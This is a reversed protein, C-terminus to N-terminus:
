QLDNERSQRRAMEVMQANLAEALEHLEADTMGRLDIAGLWTMGTARYEVDCVPCIMVPNEITGSAAGEGPEQDLPLIGMAGCQPCQRADRGGSIPTSTM